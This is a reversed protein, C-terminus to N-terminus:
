KKYKFSKGYRLEGKNKIGEAIESSDGTCQEETETHYLINDYKKEIRNM